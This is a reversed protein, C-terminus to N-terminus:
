GHPHSLAQVPQASWFPSGNRWRSPSRRLTESGMQECRTWEEEAIEAKRELIRQVDDSFFEAIVPYFIVWRGLQRPGAILDPAICQGRSYSNVTLLRDGTKLDHEEVLWRPFSLLAVCDLEDTYAAVLLPDISM